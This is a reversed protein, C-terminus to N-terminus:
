RCQPGLPAPVVPASPEAYSQAPPPPQQRDQDGFLFDFMGARAPSVAVTAASLAAALMAAQWVLQKSCRWGAM